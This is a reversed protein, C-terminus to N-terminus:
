PDVLSNSTVVKSYWKASAKPIREFSNYDVYYLGFRPAYGDKWEFNDMLSWAFYGRVDAGDGIAAACEKLYGSLYRIRFEDNLSTERSPEPAACGNETVYIVPHEYRSSVWRLLKGFGWPVVNWGMATREWEPDSSLEVGPVDYVTREQTSKEVASAYHTGYHNLGFFDASGKVLRRDDESFRPLRDGLHERMSEPYDGLFVPDAFWGLFYERARQAAEQDAPDSSKPERWDCNNTIGIQGKQISQFKSRYCDAAAAHARLLNHGVIYPERYSVRGPAMEGGGYGCLAVIWSENLTIWHKVRDGFAKFCIEAYKRFYSAIMPNVWGDCEIQLAVPLDWHYLTVWPEIKAELLRDILDSYFAIGERNAPGRGTPQIRPWALSFRYASVGLEKLLEIDTEVRHYHDCARDGNDGDFTKGPTHSFVDWISLGRGGERPAGEIQYASTAVGWSFGKPFSTM